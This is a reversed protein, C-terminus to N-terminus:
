YIVILNLVPNDEELTERNLLMKYPCNKKGKPAAAVTYIRAKQVHNIALSIKELGEGMPLGMNDGKQGLAFAKVINM